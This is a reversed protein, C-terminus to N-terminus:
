YSCKLLLLLLLLLFLHQEVWEGTSAEVGKLTVMMNIVEQDGEHLHSKGMRQLQRLSLQALGSLKRGSLRTGKPHLSIAKLLAKTQAFSPATVARKAAELLTSAKVAAGPSDVDSAAGEDEEGASAMSSGSEGNHDDGDSGFFPYDPPMSDEHKACYAKYREVNEAMVRVGIIRHARTGIMSSLSFVGGDLELLNSEDHNLIGWEKLTNLQGKNNLEIYCL